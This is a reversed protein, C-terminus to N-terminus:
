KNNNKNFDKISRHWKRLMKALEIETVVMNVEANMSIRKKIMLKFRYKSRPTEWKIKDQKDMNVVKVWSKLVLTLYSGQAWPEKVATTEVEIPQVKDFGTKNNQHSLIMEEESFVLFSM